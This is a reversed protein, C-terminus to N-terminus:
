VKLGTLLKGTEGKPDLLAIKLAPPPGSPRPLVHIAFTDKQTEGTSFRVTASIEYTGAALSDPLPFRLPVREQEGTRVTLKRNGTLPTPLNLSWECTCEVTERCNNLVILQKEVTEGPRFNHAKDTFHDANGGVYALLPRNNRLLAQGAATPLWDAREGDTSMQ